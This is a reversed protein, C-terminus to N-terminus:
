ESSPSVASSHGSIGLFISLSSGVDSEEVTSLKLIVWESHVVKLM